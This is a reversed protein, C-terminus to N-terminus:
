RELLGIFADSSVHNAGAARVDNIIERDDTVVIVPRTLPLRQVEARIVDDATTGRPSWLVRVPSRRPAHSGVVEDGDFVVAIDAGLRAVLAEIGSILLERQTRLDETPRWRKAVNYGDVIVTAGSRVLHQATAVRDGSLRGPVALPERMVQDPAPVVEAIRAALRRAQEVIDAFDTGISMVESRDQLVKDTIHAAHQADAAAQREAARAAELRASTAGHRDREHRLETKVASLESRLREIEASLDEIQTAARRSDGEAEECRSEVTSLAQEAADARAEAAQRRRVERALESGQETEVRRQLEAAELDALTSEWDDPRAFWLHIVPDADAPVSEALMDRFATDRDILRRVAKLEAGSLHRQALFQRLRSPYRLTPDRLRAVRLFEIAWELAPRLFADSVENAGAV